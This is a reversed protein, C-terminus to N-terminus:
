DAVYFLPNTKQTLLISEVAEKVDHVRLISAGKLLAMTNLSTTGNLANGADTNLTKWIMSKRSLGVLLPKGLVSLYDMKHLLEFNQAPTKAFGFGPDVIIDHFGLLNLRRIKQRLDSTVDLLLDDYKTLKSMTQPDGRMHMVCYPVKLAVVTEFMRSDLDGGSIDNIMCAGENVAMSAIGARFTDVSINADPFEKLILHITKRVRHKEEEEPINDAGPRTSYGGVDILAAGDSLMKEVQQLVAKESNFKGGDFFSDPTVNLIGMVKPPLLTIVKGNINLTKNSSFVKSQM